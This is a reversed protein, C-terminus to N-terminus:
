SSLSHFTEFLTLAPSLRVLRAERVEDGTSHAEMAFRAVMDRTANRLNSQHGDKLTPIRCEQSLDTGAALDSLYPM